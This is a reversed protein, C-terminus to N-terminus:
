FMGSTPTNKIWALVAKYEVLSMVQNHKIKYRCMSICLDYLQVWTAM